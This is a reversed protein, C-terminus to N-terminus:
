FSTIHLIEIGLIHEDSLDSVEIFFGYKARHTFSYFRPIVGKADHLRTLFPYM